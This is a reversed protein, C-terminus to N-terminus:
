EIRLVNDIHFQLEVLSDQILSEVETKAERYSELQAQLRRNEELLRTCETQARSLTNLMNDYMRAKAELEATHLEERKNPHIHGSMICHTDRADRSHFIEACTDDPCRWIRIDDDM